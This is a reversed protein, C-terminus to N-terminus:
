EKPRRFKEHCGQCAKGLAGLAPELQAEEAVGAMAVAEDHAKMRREDFGARDEGIAPKAWTEPPGEFSGDPFLDKVKELNGSITTASANVVAADFPAEKKAIAVIAGMAKGVGKMLAQRDEIPGASSSGTMLVVLLAAAASKAIMHVM